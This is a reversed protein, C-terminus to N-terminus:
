DHTYPRPSRGKAKQERDVMWRSEVDRRSVNCIAEIERRQHMSKPVRMAFRFLTDPGRHLLVAALDRMTRPITRIFFSLSANKILTDIRNIQCYRLPLSTNTRSSSAQFRHQVIAEPIYMARFGALRCRWGLDFDEFYMFYRRDFYGTSTRVAELMRRRYLCAGATTCFVEDAQSAADVPEGFNRDRAWGNNFVVVGSSNISGPDDRFVIRPQLMGVDPAEDAAVLRLRALCEYCAVADNNLVFVWDSDTADIARNCGEGFGLNEGTELVRVDRYAARVAEASGDHSANDVMVIKDPPDSQAHLSEIAALVDDRLNWNVVVAAISPRTM